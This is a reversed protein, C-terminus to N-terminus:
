KLLKQQAPDNLKEIHQQPPLKEPMTGGIEEISKRVQKGVVYHAINAKGQGHLQENKIKEEAQTIRFLNAALETSGARDLIDDEGIKKTEKVKELPQNYLGLYGFNNFSAFDKVGAKKATSFLKKNQKKVENRIFLRREDENLSQFLEQRRTQIAFYTQAVAIPTKNPDGNQAILYCAYRSLKYDKIRRTTQKATGTAIIIKKSIEPFHDSIKQNSTSCSKMAKEITKEFNSWKTYGLLNMLERATWYEFGDDDMHKTVEFNEHPATLQQM